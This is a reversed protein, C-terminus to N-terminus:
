QAGGPAELFKRVYQDLMAREVELLYEARAEADPLHHHALQWDLTTAWCDGGMPHYDAHLLCMAYSHPTPMVAAPPALPTAM